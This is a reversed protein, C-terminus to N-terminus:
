LRMPLRLSPGCGGWALTTWLSTCGADLAAPLTERYMDAGQCGILAALIALYRTPADLGQGPENVVEDYAFHSVREMFEPDTKRYDM